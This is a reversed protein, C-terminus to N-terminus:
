RGTLASLVPALRERSRALRGEAARRAGESRDEIPTGLRVIVPARERRLESRDLGLLTRTTERAASRAGWTWHQVLMRTKGKEFVLQEVDDGGPEARTRQRELMRWGSGPRRTIPSFASGADHDLDALAVFVYYDHGDVVYHRDAQQEFHVRGEYTYDRKTPLAEWGDLAGDVVATLDVWDRSPAQWVPVLMWVLTLTCALAAFVGIEDRSAHSPPCAPASTAETESVRLRELLGDVLYVLVLGVLLIAIGQLNHIAVVESHPNLILTLVRFGNLAFATLPALVFLLAAHLGRREFADILLVTLMTLTEISRLGSCGEVVQFAQTARLIQDGSVLAPVGVVYLLWGAYEATWLQLKFVLSHLPPVPIGVAFLLFAIPLWLARLGPTGWFLLAVGTAVLVLSLIQLADTATHIAWAYALTGLLFAPAALVISGRAFDLGALRHRRRYLLWGSLVVVALPANDSPKFLFYEVETSFGYRTGIRRLDAYAIAILVLGVGVVGSRWSVPLRDLLSQHGAESVIGQQVERV